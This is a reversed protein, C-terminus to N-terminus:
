SRRSGPMSCRGRGAVPRPRSHLFAPAFTTVSYGAVAICAAAGVIALYSPKKLLEWAGRLHGNQGPTAAPMAQRKGLVLLVLPAFLVSIAGMM